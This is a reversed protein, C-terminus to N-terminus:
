VDQWARRVMAIRQAQVAGLERRIRQERRLWRQQQDREQQGLFAVQQADWERWWREMEARQEEWGQGM